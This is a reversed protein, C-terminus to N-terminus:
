RKDVLEISIALRVGRDERYRLRVQSGPKGVLGQVTREPSIVQTDDSYNFITEKQDPGRVSILKANRDVNLLQGDMIEETVVRDNQASILRYHATHLFIIGIVAMLVGPYRRLRKVAAEKWCIACLKMPHLALFRGFDPM